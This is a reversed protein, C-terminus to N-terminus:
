AGVPRWNLGLQAGIFGIRPALSAGVPRWNLGLQTGILGQQTGNLCQRVFEFAVLALQADFIM